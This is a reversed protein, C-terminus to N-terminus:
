DHRHLDQDSMAAPDGLPELHTFVTIPPLARRIERKSASSCSTARSCRGSPRCWCTCRSSGSRERSGRACRTTSSRGRGRLTAPHEQLVRQESVPLAADMSAPSRGASSAAAPGSSTPRSRSRWSRTSGCSAPSWWPWVGVLVGASTWVDTLLHHANAECRRRATRGPRADAAGARGRSQDVVGAGVRGPRARGARAAAPAAPPRM